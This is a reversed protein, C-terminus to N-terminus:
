NKRSLSRPLRSPLFRGKVQLAATGFDSSTNELSIGKYSFIFVKDPCSNSRIPTRENSRRGKKRMRESNEEEKPNKIYVIEILTCSRRLQCSSISNPCCSQALSPANPMRHSPNTSLYLVRKKEISIKCDPPIIRSTNLPLRMFLLSHM